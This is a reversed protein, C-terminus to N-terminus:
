DRTDDVALLVNRAKQHVIESYHLVKAVQKHDDHIPTPQEVVFDAGNWSNFALYALQITHSWQDPSVSLDPLLVPGTDVQWSQDDRRWNITKIPYELVAIRGTVEDRLETQGILPQGSAIADGIEQPTKLVRAPAKRLRPVSGDWWDEAPRVERYKNVWRSRRRFVVTEDASFVPLFDYNDTTFLDKEAFTDESKCSGCQFYEAMKKAAPDTIRCRSEVWFRPSNWPAKTHIFSRGYDLPSELLAGVREPQQDLKGALKGARKGDEATALEQQSVALVKLRNLGGVQKDGACYTLLLRDEQFTMSTYCYWGDPNDEIVRSLSWTSGEDSSVALCLPTRKGAAFPHAGSHDNWACLLKGSFPIREITAPSRPSALNSPGLDSWTEGGDTSHGVYQSGGDTRCFMMLRGEKLEVVGPEQVTERKGAPSKGKLVHRSRRWTKGEDDSLYCTVRGAHDWQPAQATAHLAVPLVLRGSALQVARDNNLVYYGVEDTICEVPDSWSDAEDVSVRMIPRCDQLSTKRLYFLGIAGSHLRLLSVSMVNHGQKEKFVIINDDSWTRGQDDSIRRVLNAAAHDSTGGYFQTYVLCLRGDKLEILDGESNRPNEKTPEITLMTRLEAAHTLRPCATLFLLIVFRACNFNM